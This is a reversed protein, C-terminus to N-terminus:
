LLASPALDFVSQAGLVVQGLVVQTSRRPKVLWDDPFDVDDLSKGPTNGPQLIAIEDPGAAEWGLETTSCLMGNSWEGRYHRRRIKVGTWLRSGPPAAAVLGGPDPVHTGGFVIQRAKGDGVDVDALRIRDANPHRRVQLVEAVVIGHSSM